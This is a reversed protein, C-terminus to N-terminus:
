RAPPKPGQLAPGPPAPRPSKVTLLNRVGDIGPEFLALQQALERDRESAVEGRLTATRGEVSVAIPSTTRLVPTEQLQRTVASSVAEERRSGFDFGVSLQPYYLETKRRPLLVQNVNANVRIRANDIASRIAGGVAAQGSGVFGIQDGANAGVFSGRGHSRRIAWEGGQLPSPSDNTGQSSSKSASGSSPSKISSGRRGASNPFLQAWASGEVGIAAALVLIILRFNPKM